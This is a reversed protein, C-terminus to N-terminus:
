GACLGQWGRHGPDRGRRIAALGGADGAPPLRGVTTQAQKASARPLVPEGKTVTFRLAFQPRDPQPSQQMNRYPFTYDGHVVEIVHDGPQGTAPITFRATGGTTVSSIWGTFNNDYLLLWSNQLNRWGIGRVTVTIPTGVPGRKESLEVTTDISFGAQTFLRGGQQVVIDHAFGFDEPAAFSAAFHGAADTKVRAILYAVPDYERGHYEADAVKWHGNVTRWVLQFEQDPPLGDAALKVPTGPPGHDPTLTLRGRYGNEPRGVTVEPGLASAAQLGLAEAAPAALAVLAAAVMIRRLHRITRM